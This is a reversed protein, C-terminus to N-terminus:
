KLFLAKNVKIFEKTEMLYFYVGSAVMRGSNNSGDWTVTHWGAQFDKEVLTKVERGLIDYIKITVNDKQPLGFRITTIPNFPNPYNQSLEYQTPINSDADLIGTVIQEIIEQQEKSEGLNKYVDKCRIKYFLTDGGYAQWGSDSVSIDYYCRISDMTTSLLTELETKRQNIKPTKDFGFKDKVGTQKSLKGSNKKVKEMNFWESYGRDDFKFSIQPIISDDFGKGTDIVTVFIRFPTTTSDTLDIPDTKWDTFYPPVTDTKITFNWTESSWKEYGWPHKALVKWNYTTTDNLSDSFMYFNTDLGAIMQTQSKAFNSDTSLHLDYTIEQKGVGTPQEWSLTPTLNTITENNIPSCLSFDTITIINNVDGTLWKMVSAILNFNPTADIRDDSFRAYSIYVVNGKGYNSIGIIGINSEFPENNDRKGNSNNDQWVPMNGTTEVIKDNTEITELKHGAEFLIKGVGNTAPHSGVLNLYFVDSSWLTDVLSRIPNFNTKFGFDQILKFINGNSAQDAWWWYIEGIFLVKGGESVYQQIANREEPTIDDNCVSFVLVNVNELEDLTLQVMTDRLVIYDEILRDAMKKYSAIEPHEPNIQMAHSWLSSNRPHHTEDFLIIPFNYTQVTVQWQSHVRNYGDSVEVRITDVGGSTRTTRYLYTTDTSLSDLYGNVYWQYFLPNNDPVHAHVNFQLSDGALIVADALPSRSVIQPATHNEQLIVIGYAELKPITMIVYGNDFTTPLVQQDLFDPSVYIAQWSTSSDALIKLSFSNKVSFQDSAIDYDYNVLHVVLHHNTQNEYLFGSVKDIGSISMEPNVYPSLLNIFENNNETPDAWYFSGYETGFNRAEKYYVFKGLGLTKVGSSTQLAQLEARLTLHGDEGRTGIDGLAIINGGNQIFGLIAYVQNDNLSMTNPLIVTKYKQLVDISIDPLTCFRTDPAFIVNFPISHDILFQGTGYFSTITLGGTEHQVKPSLSSMSYILGCNPSYDLDEFLFPHSYIFNSYKGAIDFNYKVVETKLQDNEMGDFNYTLHAMGQSAYVDSFVLKMLNDTNQPYNLVGIGELEVLPLVPWDKISKRVKNAIAMFDYVEYGTVYNPLLRPRQYRKGFLHSEGVAYDVLDWHIDSESSAGHFENSSVTVDRGYINKAYEKAYQVLEGFLNRDAIRTFIWFEEKLGEFPLYIWDDQQGHSIIWEAYNFDDISSIDFYSILETETYHNKLYERFEILTFKDFSTEIAFGANDFFIGDAGVDIMKRIHKKLVRKWTPSCVSAQVETSGKHIEGNISRGAVSDIKCVLTDDLLMNGYYTHAVYIKGLHHSYQVDDKTQSSDSWFSSILHGWAPLGSNRIKSDFEAKKESPMWFRYVGVEDFWSPKYQAIVFPAQFFCYLIITLIKLKTM